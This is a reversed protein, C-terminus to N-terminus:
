KSMTITLEPKFFYKFMEQPVTEGDKLRQSILSTLSRNHITPKILDSRGLDEDVWRMADEKKDEAISVYLTDKRVVLCNLTTSRFSKLDANDMHEILKAQASDKVEKAQSLLNDLREVEQRADLVAQLLENEEM